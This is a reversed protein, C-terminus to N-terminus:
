ERGISRFIKLNGAVLREDRTRPRRAFFLDHRQELLVEALVVRHSIPEVHIHFRDCTIIEEVGRRLGGGRLCPICRAISNPTRRSGASLKSSDNAASSAPQPSSLPKGRSGFPVSSRTRPPVIRTPNTSFGGHTTRLPSSAAPM